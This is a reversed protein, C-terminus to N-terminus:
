YTILLYTSDLSSRLLCAPSISIFYCIFHTINKDFLTPSDPFPQKAIANPSISTDKCKSALWLQMDCWKCCAVRPLKQTDHLAAAAATTGAVTKRQQLKQQM